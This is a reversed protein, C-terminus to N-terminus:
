HHDRPCYYTLHTISRSTLSEFSLHCMLRHRCRPSGYTRHQRVSQPYIYSSCVTALGHFHKVDSHPFRPGTHLLFWSALWCQYRWRAIWIRLNRDRVPFPFRRRPDQFVFTSTLGGSRRCEGQTRNEKPLMRAKSRLQQSPCSEPRTSHESCLYTRLLRMLFALLISQSRPYSPTRMLSAGELLISYRDLSASAASASSPIRHYHERGSWGYFLAFSSFSRKTDSRPLVAIHVLSSKRESQHWKELYTGSWIECPNIETSIWLNWVYFLFIFLRYKM